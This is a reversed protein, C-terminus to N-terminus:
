IACLKLFLITSFLFAEMNEICSFCLIFIFDFTDKFM